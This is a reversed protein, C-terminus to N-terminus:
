SNRNKYIKQYHEADDALPHLFCKPSLKKRVHDMLWEDFTNFETQMSNADVNYESLKQSIWIIYDAQSGEPPKNNGSYLMWLLYRSNTGEPRGVFSENGDIYINISNQEVEVLDDWHIHRKKNINVFKTELPVIFHKNEVKIHWGRIAKGDKNIGIAKLM